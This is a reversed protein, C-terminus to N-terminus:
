HKKRPLLPVNAELAGFRRNYYIHLGHAAHYLSGGDISKTAQDFLL